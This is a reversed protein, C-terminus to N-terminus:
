GLHFVPFAAKGGEVCLGPVAWWFNGWTGSGSVGTCLVTCSVGLSQPHVLLPASLDQKSVWYACMCTNRLTGPMVM